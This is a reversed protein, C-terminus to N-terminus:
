PRGSGLLCNCNCCTKPAYYQEKRCHYQVLAKLQSHHIINADGLRSLANSGVLYILPDNPDNIQPNAEVFSLVTKVIQSYQYRKEDAGRKGMQRFIRCLDGSLYFRGLLGGHPEKSCIQQIVPKPEQALWRAYITLNEGGYLSPHALILHDLVRHLLAKYHLFPQNFIRRLPEDFSLIEWNTSDYQRELTIVKELSILIKDLTFTQFEAQEPYEQPFKSNLYSLLPSEGQDNLAFLYYCNHPLIALSYDM